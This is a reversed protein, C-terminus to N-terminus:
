QRSTCTHWTLQWTVSVADANDMGNNTMGKSPNTLVRRPMSPNLRFGPNCAKYLRQIETTLAKLPSEGGLPGSSRATRERSNSSNGNSSSSNSNRSSSRWSCGQGGSSHVFVAGRICLSSKGTYRRLGAPTGNHVTFSDLVGAASSSHSEDHQQQQQQMMEGHQQQHQQHQQQQQQQHQQQQQQQHQQQQQQQMQFHQQQQQQQQQPQDTHMASEDTNTPARLANRYAHQVGPSLNSM